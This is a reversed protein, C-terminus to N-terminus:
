KMEKVSLIRRRRRWIYQGFKGRTEDIGILTQIAVDMVAQRFTDEEGGKKCRKVKAERGIKRRRKRRCSDRRRV